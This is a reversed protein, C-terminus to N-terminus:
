LSVCEADFNWSKWARRRFRRYRAASPARRNTWVRFLVTMAEGRMRMGSSSTCWRASPLTATGSASCGNMPPIATM